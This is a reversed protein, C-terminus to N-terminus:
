ELQKRISAIREEVMRRKDPPGEIRQLLKELHALADRLRGLKHEVEAIWFLAIEDDPQWHLARELHVYGPELDGMEIESRGLATLAETTARNLDDLRKLLPRAELFRGKSAYEIGLYQLALPSDPDVALIQKALSVIMRDNKDVGANIMQYLLSLVEVRDKPDAGAEPGPAPLPQQAIEGSPDAYGLEALRQREDADLMATEVPLPAGGSSRIGKLLARMREAQDREQDLLNKTEFPDKGLDYLEPRPAEIYKFAGDVVAELPSWGFSLYPVYTELYIPPADPASHEQNLLHKFSAGATDLAPLGAIELLTAAVDILGVPSLVRSTVLSPHALVLPVRMTAEYLYTGHAQEIHYQLGEGHDATICVWTRELLERSHLADLLRKLNRDAHHIEADYASNFVGKLDDPERQPAHPDYFHVWLFFPGDITVLWRLCADVTDHAPREIEQEDVGSGPDVYVDFGQDLGKSRGLVSCSVFAATVAGASQFSEALTNASQSLRYLGNTRVGHTFPNQGTLLTAHAPLTFPVCTYAREFLIGRAALADIAPSVRPDGGYCGLHDARTTDFTVLLVNELREASSPRDESSATCGSLLLWPGLFSAAIRSSARQHELTERMKTM